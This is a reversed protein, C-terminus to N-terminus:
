RRLWEHDPLGVRPLAGNVGPDDKKKTEGIENKKTM